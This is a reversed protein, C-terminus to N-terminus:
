QGYGDERSWGQQIAHFYITRLTAHRRQTNSNRESRFYDWLSCLRRLRPSGHPGNKKWTQAPKGRLKGSSWDVALSWLADAMEPCQKSAHALPAIRHGAWTKEPCDPDLVRLASTLSELDIHAQDPDSTVADPYQDADGGELQPAAVPQEPLAVSFADSVAQAQPDISFVSNM